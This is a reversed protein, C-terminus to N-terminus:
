GKSSLFAVALLIGILGLTQIPFLYLFFALGALWLWIANGSEKGDLPMKNPTHRRAEAGGCPGQWTRQNPINSPTQGVVNNRGTSQYRTSNPINSM